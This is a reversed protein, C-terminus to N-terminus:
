RGVRFLSESVTGRWAELLSEKPLLLGCHPRGPGKGEGPQIVGIREVQRWLLPKGARQADEHGGRPKSWCLGVEFALFTAFFFM